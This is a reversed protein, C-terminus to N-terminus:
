RPTAPDNARLSLTSERVRRAAEAGSPRPSDAPRGAGAGSRHPSGASRRSIEAGYLRTRTLLTFRWWNIFTLTAAGLLALTLLAVGAAAVRPANRARYRLREFAAGFDGRSRTLLALTEPRYVQAPRLGAHSVAANLTRLYPGADRARIRSLADGREARDVLARAVDRFVARRWATNFAAATAPDISASMDPPVRGGAFFRADGEALDPIRAGSDSATLAGADELARRWGEYRAVLGSHLLGGALGLLEGRLAGDLGSTEVEPCEAELRAFTHVAVAAWASDARALAGSSGGIAAGDQRLGGAVEALMECREGGGLGLTAAWVPDDLVRLTLVARTLALRPDPRLRNHHYVRQLNSSAWFVHEPIPSDARRGAVERAHLLLPRLPDDRDMEWGRRRVEGALGGPDRFGPAAMYSAVLGAYADLSTLGEGPGGRCSLVGPSMAVREYHGSRRAGAGTEALRYNVANLARRFHAVAEAPQGRGYAVFGALYRFHFAMLVDARTIGRARAVRGASAASVNPVGGGDAAAHPVGALLRAATGLDNGAALARAIAYQALLRRDGALHGDASRLAEVAAALATRDGTAMASNARRVLRDLEAATMAGAPDGTATREPHGETGASIGAACLAPPPPPALLADSRAVLGGGDEVALRWAADRALDLSVPGGAFEHAAAMTAGPAPNDLLERGLLVGVAAIAACALGFVRLAVRGPAVWRARGGPLVRM